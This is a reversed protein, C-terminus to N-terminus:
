EVGAFHREYGMGDMRSMAVDFKMWEGTGCELIKESNTGHM